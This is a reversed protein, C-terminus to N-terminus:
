ATRRGLARDRLGRPTVLRQVWGFFVGALIALLAAPVAGALVLGFDYTYLGEFIINGLGGAGILSALVAWSIIYIASLRIGAMIVGAALPLEVQVLVQRGSMGMARASDVVFGPVAKVGVYTNRLIPLLAYLAMAATAPVLGIGLVPLVLALLALSPVTQLFGTVAIVPEAMRPRRTLFIGLPIAISAGVAVSIAVIEVHRLSDQLVLPWHALTGLLISSTSM